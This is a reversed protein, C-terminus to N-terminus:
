LNIGPELAGVIVLASLNTFFDFFLRHLFFPFLKMLAQLHDCSFDPASVCDRSPFRGLNGPAPFKLFTGSM